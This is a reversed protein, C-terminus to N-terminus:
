HLVGYVIYELDGAIEANNNALEEVTDDYGLREAYLAELICKLQEKDFDICEVVTNFRVLQSTDLMDLFEVEAEEYASDFFLNSM